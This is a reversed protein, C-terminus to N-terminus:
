PDLLYIKYGLIPLESSRGSASPKSWTILASDAGNAKVSSIVTNVPVREAYMRVIPSYKGSKLNVAKVRVNYEKGANLTFSSSISQIRCSLSNTM